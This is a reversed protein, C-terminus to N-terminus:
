DGHEMRAMVRVLHRQQAASVQAARAKLMGTSISHLHCRQNPLQQLPDTVIIIRDAREIFIRHRIAALDTTDYNNIAHEDFFKDFVANVNDHTITNTTLLFLLDPIEPLYEFPAIRGNVIGIPDLRDLYDVLTVVLWAHEPIGCNNNYPLHFHRNKSM